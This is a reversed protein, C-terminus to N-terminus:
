HCFRCFLSLYPEYTEIFVMSLSLYLFPVWKGSATAAAAKSIAQVEVISVKPMEEPPGNGDFNFVAMGNVDYMGPSLESDEIIQEAVYCRAKSRDFNFRRSTTKMAM